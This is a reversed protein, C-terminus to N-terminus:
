GASCQVSSRYRMPLRGRHCGDPLLVGNQHPDRVRRPSGAAALHPIGCSPATPLPMRPPWHRCHRAVSSSPGYCCDNQKGAIPASRKRRKTCVFGPASQRTTTAPKSRACRRHRESPATRATSRMRCISESGPVVPEPSVVAVLARARETLQPHSAFFVEIKRASRIGLGPIAIWWRRRRPIRVTLEALTNIGCAQLASVARTPLWASVPDSVRPQPIPLYGLIELARAVTKAHRTREAVACRFLAALDDRHRNHAFDAIQRRIRGLIGRASGGEGLADPCFRVVADRSGMGAYWARLAALSAADPMSCPIAFDQMPLTPLAFPSTITAGPATM